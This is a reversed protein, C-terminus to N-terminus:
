PRARDLHRQFDAATAGEALFRSPDSGWPLAVRRADIGATHLQQALRQAARTGADDADLCLYVTHAFSDGLEGRQQANLHAGMAAVTQPFGAQWLAALDLLGEVVILHSFQRARKWGYLGGKPRPLFWHRPARGDDIARGYLNGADEMPFTLCRWFRDRGRADILGCREWQARAYGRDELGARLCAGPAYGIRLQAIVTSAHIGRRALYRCAEPHRPLQAQYFGFAEELAEQPSLGATLRALAEPFSVRDLLEILRILDGGRGCRHCYFVQKRRNVYFSPHTERHLPCLGAVEDSGGQRIPRWGRQQLYQLLSIRQRLAERQGDTM